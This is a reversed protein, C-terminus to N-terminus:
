PAGHERLAHPELAGRQDCQVQRAAKDGANGAPGVEAHRRPIRSEARVREDLKDTREHGEHDRDHAAQIDVTLALRGAKGVQERHRRPADGEGRAHEHQPQEADNRHRHREPREGAHDTGKPAVRERRPDISAGGRAHRRAREHEVDRRDPEREGEASVGGDPDARRAEGAGEEGHATKRM